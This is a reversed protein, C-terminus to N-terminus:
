FGVVVTQEKSKKDKANKNNVHDKIHEQYKKKFTTSFPCNECKYRHTNLHKEILKKFPTIFDCKPCSYKCMNTSKIIDIGHMVIKHMKFASDISFTKDCLDFPVRKKHVNIEHYHLNKENRFLRECSPCKFNAQCTKRHINM